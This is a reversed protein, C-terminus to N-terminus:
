LLPLEIAVVCEKGIFARVEGNHAWILADIIPPLPSDLELVSSFCESLSYVTHESAAPSAFPFTILIEANSDTRLLDVRPTDRPAVVTILENFLGLVSKLKSEDILAYCPTSSRNEIQPFVEELISLLNEKEFRLPATGLQSLDNLLVSIEILKSSSRACQGEPLISQFYFLDNSIVSLPTRLKHSLAKILSSFVVFARQSQDRPPKSNM